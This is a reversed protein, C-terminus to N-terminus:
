EFEIWKEWKNRVLRWQHATKEQERQRILRNGKRMGRCRSRGIRCERGGMGKYGYRAWTNGEDLAFM